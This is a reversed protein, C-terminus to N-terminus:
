PSVNPDGADFARGRDAYRARVGLDPDAASTVWRYWCDPPRATSLASFGCGAFAVSDSHIRLERFSILM